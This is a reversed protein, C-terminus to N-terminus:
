RRRLTPAVIFVSWGDERRKYVRDDSPSFFWLWQDCQGNIWQGLPTVLKFSNRGDCFVTRLTHQWHTWVAPPITGQKPYEYYHPWTDDFKGERAKTMIYTGAGNVIDSLTTVKLFIRCWNLKILVKGKIGYRAFSEMLFKDNERRTKLHDLGEDIQMTHESLFKWTHQIIGKTALLGYWKYSLNFLSGGVGIELKIGDINIQFNKGIDTQRRCHEMMMQIHDIGM